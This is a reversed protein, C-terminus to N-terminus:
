REEWPIPWPSRLRLFHPHLGAAVQCRRAAEPTERGYGNNKRGISRTGWLAAITQATITANPKAQTIVFLFPRGAEKALAVTQAVAWLNAPSPRVPILVLDALDLVSTSQDSITPPTDIFCYAAGRGALAALGFGLHFGCSRRPLRETLFM